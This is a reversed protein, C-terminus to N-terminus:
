YDQEQLAAKSASLACTCYMCHHSFTNAGKRTLKKKLLKDCKVTESSYVFKFMLCLYCSYVCFANELYLYKDNLPFFGFTSYM